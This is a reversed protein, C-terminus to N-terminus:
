EFFGSVHLALHRDKAEQAAKRTYYGYSNGLGAVNEEVVAEGCVECDVLFVPTISVKSRPIKAM